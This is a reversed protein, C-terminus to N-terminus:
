KTDLFPSKIADVHQLYGSRAAMAHAARDIIVSWFNGCVIIAGPRGNTGGILLPVLARRLRLEAVAYTMFGQGNAAAEMRRAKTDPSRAPREDGIDVDTMTMAFPMTPGITATVTKTSNPPEGWELSASDLSIMLTRYSGRRPSTKLFAAREGSQLVINSKGRM